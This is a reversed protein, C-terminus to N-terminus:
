GIRKLWTLIQAKLAQWRMVLGNWDLRHCRELLEAKVTSLEERLWLEQRKRWAAFQAANMTMVRKLVAGWEQRKCWGVLRMLGDRLYAPDSMAFLLILALLTMALLIRGLRRMLAEGATAPRNSADAIEDTHTLPPVQAVIADEATPAPTPTPILVRTATPVPVPSPVPQLETEHGAAATADPQPSASCPPIIRLWATDQPDVATLSVTNTGLALLPTVDIPPLTEVGYGIMQGSPAFEIGVVSHGALDASGDENGSLLASQGAQYDLTVPKAHELRHLQAGDNVSHTCGGAFVPQPDLLLATSLLGILALQKVNAM